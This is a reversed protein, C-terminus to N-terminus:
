SNARKFLFNLSKLQIKCHGIKYSNVSIKLMNEKKTATESPRYLKGMNPKYNEQPTIKEYRIQTKTNM